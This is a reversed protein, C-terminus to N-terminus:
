REYVVVIVLTKGTDPERGAFLYLLGEEGATTLEFEVLMGENLPPSQAKLRRERAVAKCDIILAKWLAEADKQEDFTFRATYDDKSARVNITCTAGPFRLDAAHSAVRRSESLKEGLIKKFGDEALVLLQEIREKNTSADTSEEELFRCTLLNTDKSGFAYRLVPITNAQRTWEITFRVTHKSNPLLTFAEDQLHKPRGSWRWEDNDRDERPRWGSLYRGICRVPRMGTNEYVLKVNVIPPVGDTNWAISSEDFRITVQKAAEEEGEDLLPVLERSPQAPVTRVHVRCAFYIAGPIETWVQRSPSGPWPDRVVLHKIAPGSPTNVYQVSTLM